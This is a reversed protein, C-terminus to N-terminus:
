ESITEGRWPVVKEKWPKLSETGRIGEEEAVKRVDRNHEHVPSETRRDTWWAKDAWLKSM